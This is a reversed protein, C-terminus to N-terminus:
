FDRGRPVQLLLAPQTRGRAPGRPRHGSDLHVLGGAEAAPNLRACRAGRATAAPASCRAVTGSLLEARPANSKAPAIFVSSSM